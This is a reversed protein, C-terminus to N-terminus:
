YKYLRSFKGSERSCGFIWGRRNSKFGKRLDELYWRCQARFHGPKGCHYCNMISGSRNPCTAVVHGVRNCGFCRVGDNVGTNASGLDFEVKNGREGQYNAFARREPNVSYGGRRNSGYNIGGRNTYGNRQNIKILKQM